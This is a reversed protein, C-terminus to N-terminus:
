RDCQRWAKYPQIENFLNIDFSKVAGHDQLWGGLESSTDHNVSLIDMPGNVHM